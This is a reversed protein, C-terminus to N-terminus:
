KETETLTADPKLTAYKEKQREARARKANQNANEHRRLRKAV